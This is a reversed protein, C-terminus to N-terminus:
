VNAQGGNGQRRPPLFGTYNGDPSPWKNRILQVVCCPIVVRNNKGLHGHEWMVFQRYSTHRHGRNNHAPLRAQVDAGANTATRVV